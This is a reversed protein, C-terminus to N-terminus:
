NGVAIYLVQTGAVGDVTFTLPVANGALVEPVTINIQYLGTYGSVLGDYAVKAAVGGRAIPSPQLGVFSM